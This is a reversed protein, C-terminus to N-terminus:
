IQMFEGQDTSLPMKKIQRLLEEIEMKKFDITKDIHGFKHAYTANHEKQIEPEIRNVGNIYDEVLM